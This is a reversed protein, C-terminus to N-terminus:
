RIASASAAKADPVEKTGDKFKDEITAKKLKKLAKELDETTAIQSQALDGDAGRVLMQKQIVEARKSSVSPTARMGSNMLMADAASISAFSKPNSILAAHLKLAEYFAQKQTVLRSIATKQQKQTHKAYKHFLPWKFMKESKELRAEAQKLMRQKQAILREFQQQKSDMFSQGNVYADPQFAYAEHRQSRSFAAPRLPPLLDTVRVQMM